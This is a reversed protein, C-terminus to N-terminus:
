VRCGPPHPLTRGNLSAGAAGEPRPGVQLSRALCSRDRRKEEASPIFRPLFPAETNRPTEWRASRLHQPHTERTDRHKGWSGPPQIPHPPCRWGEPSTPLVTWGTRQGQQLEWELHSTTPVSPKSWPHSGLPWRPSVSKSPPPTLTEFVKGLQVPM